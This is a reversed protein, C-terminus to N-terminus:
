GRNTPDGWALAVAWTYPLPEKGSVHAVGSDLQWARRSCCGVGPQDGLWMWLVDLTRM